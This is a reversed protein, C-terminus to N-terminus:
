LINNETKERNKKWTAIFHLAKTYESEYTYVCFTVYLCFYVKLTKKM